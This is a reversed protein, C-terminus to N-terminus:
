NFRPFDSPNTKKGFNFSIMSNNNSDNREITKIHLPNEKYVKRTMKVGERRPTPSSLVKRFPPELFVSQAHETCYGSKKSNDGDGEAEPEVPTCINM